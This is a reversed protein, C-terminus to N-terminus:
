ATPYEDAQREGFVGIAENTSRDITLDTQGGLDTGLNGAGNNPAQWSGIEEDVLTDMSAPKRMWAFWAGVAGIVAALGISAAVWPWISMKNRGLLRDITQDATKGVDKGVKELSPLDIESLDPIRKRLEDITSQDLNPLVFATM